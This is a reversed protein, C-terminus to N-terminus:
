HRVRIWLWYYGRTVEFMLAIGGASGAGFSFEYIRLGQRSFFKEQM